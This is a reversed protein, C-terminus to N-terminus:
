ECCFSRKEAPDSVSFFEVYADSQFLFNRWRQVGKANGALPYCKFYKYFLLNFINKIVRTLFNRWMLLRFFNRCSMSVHNACRYVLDQLFYSWMDCFIKGRKIGRCLSQSSICLIVGCIVVFLSMTVWRLLLMFDRWRYRLPTSSGSVSFSEVYPFLTGAILFNRWM